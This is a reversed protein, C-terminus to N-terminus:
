QETYTYDTSQWAGNILSLLRAYVMAGTAPLKPVTTTTTPAAIHGSQYLNNTGVATGLYLDYETVNTGATWTFKINSTGLVTGQAPSQIQAPSGAPPSEKFTYDLYQWTGNILSLLRVYLTAGNAPVTAVAATTTPAAIHGSQYLNNSGVGTSGVYLDYDTALPSTTWTFAVNSAALVSGATPSTLMAPSAETFTYDYYQWAGNIL